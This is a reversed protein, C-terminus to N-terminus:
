GGVADRFNAVLEDHKPSGVRVFLGPQGLPAAVTVRSGDGAHHEAGGFVHTWAGSGAPLHATVSTAGRYVVPAVLLDGGLFFQTHLGASVPDDPYALWPHRVVPMGSAAAERMLDRRLDRWAAHLRAARAFDALTHEDSYVQVNLAPRNGEHTRLVVSFALLEGWRALLERSRVIQPLPRVTSTYGGVDGHQLSFGSFGSSILGTLASRLGDHEDWTVTQDGLWFLGASGPSQSFGSRFFTVYHEPDGDGRAALRARLDRNFDAWEQPYRNHYEFAVGDHLVADFPLGEGFDAMWGAAGTAAIKETLAELYWERAAPNSLDVMGADFDGQDVPYTEGSARRVFYGREAAEGYLDPRAGPRTTMDALFPNCYVMVKVGREALGAVMAEWEPYRDRNLQWDWWLREGFGVSRNGVWDQLWVAALPVGHRELAAVVREVKERGGQMGVIAGAHVWDPLAPMRGSFRTYVELLEAPTSGAIVRATLRSAYVLVSAVRPHRLDFQSPASDILYLARRDSGIMVPAPAYTSWWHGGAGGRFNALFTLPQAGRGVGQEATLIPVRRGKLDVFSFQVGFGFQATAESQDWLLETWLTPSAGSGGHAGDGAVGPDREEPVSGLGDGRDLEVALELQESDATRISMRYGVRDADGTRGTSFVHGTVSVEDPGIREVADVSQDGYRRKVHEHLTLHGATGSAGITGHLAAIFAGGASSWVVTAQSGAAAHTVSMGGGHLRLTFPGVRHEGVAAAAVHLAGPLPAPRGVWARYAGVARRM